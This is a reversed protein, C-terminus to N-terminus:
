GGKIFESLGSITIYTFFRQWCSNQSLEDPFFRLSEGGGHSLAHFAACKVSERM